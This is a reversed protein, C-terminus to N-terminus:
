LLEDVRERVEEELEERVADAAVTRLREAAADRAEELVPALMAEAAQAYTAGGTTAGIGNVVVDRLVLEEPESLHESTL